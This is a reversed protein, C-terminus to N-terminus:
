VSKSDIKNVINNSIAVQTLAFPIIGFLIILPPLHYILMSYIGLLMLQMIIALPSSIGVQIIAAFYDRIPLRYHIIVPFLYLWFITLIIIFFIIVTYMTIKVVDESYLPIYLFNLIIIGSIATFIWGYINAVKFNEKYLRKFLQLQDEYDSERIWHRIVGYLAATAPFLGLIIAGRLIFVIWYFHLKLLELLWEAFAFIKKM